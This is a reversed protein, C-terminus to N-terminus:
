ILKFELTPAASSAASLAIGILIGNVVNTILGAKAGTGAYLKDGPAITVATDIQNSRLIADGLMVSLGEDSPTTMSNLDYEVFGKVLIGFTTDTMGDALKLTGDTDIAVLRGEILSKLYTTALLNNPDYFGPFTSIDKVPRSCRIGSHIITLNSM